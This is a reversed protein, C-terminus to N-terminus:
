LAKMRVTYITFLVWFINCNNNYLSFCSSEKYNIYICNVCSSFKVVFYFNNVSLDEEDESPWECEEDGSPWECEEDTPEVNATIIERRM